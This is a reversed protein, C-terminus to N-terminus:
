QLNVHGNVHNALKNFLMLLPNLQEDTDCEEGDDHSGGKDHLPSTDHNLIHDDNNHCTDEDTGPNPVLLIAHRLERV